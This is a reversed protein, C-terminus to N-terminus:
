KKLREMRLWLHIYAEGIKPPMALHLDRIYRKQHGKDAAKCDAWDPTALARMRLYFDRFVLRNDQLTRLVALRFREV